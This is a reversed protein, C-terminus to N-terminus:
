CCRGHTINYRANQREIFFDAPAKPTELPHHRAMHQLYAEYDPMGVMLRATKFILKTAYRIKKHITM